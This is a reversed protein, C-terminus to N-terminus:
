LYLKKVRLKLRTLLSHKRKDPLDIRVPDKAAEPSICAKGIQSRLGVPAPFPGQDPAMGQPM